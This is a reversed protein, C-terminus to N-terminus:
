SKWNTKADIYVNKYASGLAASSFFNEYRSRANIGLQMALCENELLLNMAKALEISNEPPVVFGTESDVNAFSTGTGVECSIMPRSYIAAEILVMGFAETRIHSPLVLARCHRLLAVKEEDTIQGAFILNEIGLENSKARLRFSEPGDGAIVVRANVNAAAEILYDIGKYYRFVGVFLFYPEDKNFCLRSFIDSDVRTPYSNEDIGLPIVRVKSVYRCDSLVPSTISYAPSTAVIYSM